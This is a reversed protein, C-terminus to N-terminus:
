DFDASMTAMRAEHGTKEDGDSDGARSDQEAKIADLMTTRNKGDKEAQNLEQLEADSLNPLEKEADAVTGESLKNVDAM